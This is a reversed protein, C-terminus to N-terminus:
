VNEETPSPPRPRTTVSDPSVSATGPVPERDALPASDAHTISVLLSKIARPLSVKRLLAATGKAVTGDIMTITLGLIMLLIAIWNIPVSVWVRFALTLVAILSVTLISLGSIFYLALRRRKLRPDAAAAGDQYCGILLAIGTGLIFTILAEWLDGAGLGKGEGRRYEDAKEILNDLAMAHWHVGPLQGHLPTAIWDTGDFQTGILVLRDGLLTEYDEPDLGLGAVLRDYELHLSYICADRPGSGVAEMFRVGPNDQSRCVSAPGSSTDRLLDAQEPASRGGWVVAFPDDFASLDPRAVAPAAQDMLIMAAARSAETVSPLGCPDSLRDAVISLCNALYLAMPPTLDFAGNPRPQVLDAGRENVLISALIAVHEIRAQNERRTNTASRESAPPPRAFIIPVGGAQIICAMKVVPNVQCGPRDAWRDAKSVTAVSSVFAEFREQAESQTASAPGDIWLDAFIARPAGGVQAIDEIMFGINDAGPPFDPWGSSELARVGAEDLTIVSIVSQGAAPSERPFPYGDATMAQLSAQAARGSATNLGFLDLQALAIGALAAAAGSVVARFWRTAFVELGGGLWQLRCKTM